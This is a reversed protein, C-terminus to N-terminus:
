VGMVSLDHATTDTTLNQVESFVAVIVDGNEQWSARM